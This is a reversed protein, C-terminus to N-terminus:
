CAGDKRWIQYGTRYGNTGTWSLTINVLNLTSAALSEPSLPVVAHNTPPSCGYSNCAVVYYSYSTTSSNDAAGDDVYGTSGAAVMALIEWESAGAKRYVNFGTEDTSNSYWKLRITNTTEAFAKLNTPSSPSGGPGTKATACNSYRSDGGANYARVRFSYDADPALGLSLSSTTDASEITIQKWWSKSECTGRKREVKYGSENRAKDAWTLIVRKSSTAVANLNEPAAPLRPM